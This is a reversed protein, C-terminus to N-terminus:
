NQGFHGSIARFIGGEGGNPPTGGWDSALGGQIRLGVGDCKSVYMGYVRACASVTCYGMKQTATRGERCYRRQQRADAPM